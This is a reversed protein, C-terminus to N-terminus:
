QHIICIFVVPRDQFCIFELEEVVSMETDKGGEELWMIWSM